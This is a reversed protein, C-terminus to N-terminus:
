SPAGEAIKRVRQVIELMNPVDRVRISYGVRTHAQVVNPAIGGPDLLAHRARM